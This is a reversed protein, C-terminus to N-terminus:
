SLDLAARLRILSSPGLVQYPQRFGFTLSYTQMLRKYAKARKQRMSTCRQPTPQSPPLTAPLNSSLSCVRAPALQRPRSIPPRTQNLDLRAHTAELESARQAEVWVGATSIKLFGSHVGVRPVPAVSSRFM